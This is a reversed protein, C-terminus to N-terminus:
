YSSKINNYKCIENMLEYKQIKYVETYQKKRYIPILERTHQQPDECNISSFLDISEM